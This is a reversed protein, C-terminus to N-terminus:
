LKIFGYCTRENRAAKNTFTIALVKDVPFNLEEVLWQIKRTLVLTKGSGAGAVILLPGDLYEVANKQAINLDKFYSINKM